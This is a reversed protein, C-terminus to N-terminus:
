ENTSQKESERLFMKKVVPAFDSLDDTSMDEMMDELCPTLYAPRSISAMAAMAEAADARDRAWYWDTVVDKEVSSWPSRSM